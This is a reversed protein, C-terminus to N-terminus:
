LLWLNVKNLYVTQIVTIFILVSFSFYFYFDLLLDKNLSFKTTIDDWHNQNFQEVKDMM